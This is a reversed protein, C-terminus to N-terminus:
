ITFTSIHVIEKDEESMADLMAMIEKEEEDSVYGHIKAYEEMNAQMLDWHFDAYEEKALCYYNLAKNVIESRNKCQSLWERNEPKITFTKKVANPKTSRSHSMLITSYM